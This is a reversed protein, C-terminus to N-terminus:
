VSSSHIYFMPLITSVSYVSISAFYVTGSVGHGGYIGYSRFTNM